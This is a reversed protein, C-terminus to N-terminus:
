ISDPAVSELSKLLPLFWKLYFGKNDKTIVDTYFAALREYDPRGVLKAVIIGTSCRSIALASHPTRKGPKDNLEADIASLSSWREFYPLAVERFLPIIKEVIGPIDSKSRLLFRCSLSDGGLLIGVMTGMTPTGSQYKKQFMSTQHYIQEVREIRVGVAPKVWHGPKANPCVLYFWDSIGDHRRIFKYYKRSLEFGDAVLHPRVSDFLAVKLPTNEEEPLDEAM